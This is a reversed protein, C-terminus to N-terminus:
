CYIRSCCYSPERCLPCSGHTNDYKLACDGCICLHGCPIYAHSPRNELCVVCKNERNAQAVSNEQNAGTAEKQQDDDSPLNTAAVAESTAPVATDAPNDHATASAATSGTEEQQTGVLADLDRLCQISSRHGGHLAQRKKMKQFCEDFGLHGVHLLSCDGCLRREAEKKDEEWGDYDFQSNDLEMIDPHTRDGEHLMQKIKLQFCQIQMSLMFLNAGPLM